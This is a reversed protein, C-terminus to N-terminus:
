CFNSAGTLQDFKRLERSEQLIHYEYTVSPKNGLGFGRCIGLHSELREEKGAESEGGASNGITDQRSGRAIPCAFAAGRSFPDIVRTCVIPNIGIALAPININRTDVVNAEIPLIFSRM